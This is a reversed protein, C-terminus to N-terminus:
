SRYPGIRGLVSTSPPTSELARHGVLRHGYRNDELILLTFIMRQNRFGSGSEGEAYALTTENSWPITSTVPALSLKHLHQAICPNTTHVLGLASSMRDFPKAAPKRIPQLAGQAPMSNYNHTMPVAPAAEQAVIRDTTSTSDETPSVDNRKISVGLATYLATTINEISRVLAPTYNNVVPADFDTGTAGEENM